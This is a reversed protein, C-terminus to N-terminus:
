PPVGKLSIFRPSLCQAHHALRRDGKAEHRRTVYLLCVIMGLLCRSVMEDMGYAGCLEMLYRYLAQSPTCGKNMFDKFFFIALRVLPLHAETALDLRVRVSLLTFWLEYTL